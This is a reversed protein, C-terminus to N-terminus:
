RRMLEWMRVFMEEWDHLAYMRDGPATHPLLVVNPYTLLPEDPDAPEKYGVDMGVGGLQGSEIAAILAPKDVIDARATNVLIAGKKMLALRRADIMGRTQPSLPLHISLFDCKALMEDLPAYSAGLTFEDVVPLRTRQHYLVKMGFATARSAVERGIEGLGLAGLTHGHLMKLGAVRGYNSIGVYRKDFPTTDFGHQQLSQVSVLGATEGMRKGLVLMLMLAHEAVSVNIRRRTANVPIGRALCATTDINAVQGGWKQVVKLRKAFDLEAAGITFKEVIVADADVIRRRLDEQDQAFEVTAPFLGPIRNRLDRVWGRFDPLDHKFFSVCAETHAEPAKPDLLAPAIRLIQDEEILVKTM